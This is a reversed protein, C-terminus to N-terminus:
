WTYLSRPLVDPFEDKVWEEYMFIKSLIQFFETDRQM